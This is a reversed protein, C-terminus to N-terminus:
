CVIHRGSGGGYDLYENARIVRGCKVCRPKLPYRHTYEFPCRASPAPTISTIRGDDWSRGCHGCTAVAIPNKAEYQRNTIVNWLKM